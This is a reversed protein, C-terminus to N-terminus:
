QRHQLCVAGRESCVRRVGVEGGGYGGQCRLVGIDAQGRSRFFNLFIILPSHSLISFSQQSGIPAQRIGTDASSALQEAPSAGGVIERVATHVPTWREAITM